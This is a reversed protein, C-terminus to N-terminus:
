SALPRAVSPAAPKAGLADHFSKMRAVIRGISLPFTMHGGPIWEIPPEGWEHWQQKVLPATIYADDTAAIWLQREPPLM